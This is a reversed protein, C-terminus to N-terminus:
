TGDYDQKSFIVEKYNEDLFRAYEKDIETVQDLEKTRLEIRVTKEQIFVNAHHSTEEEYELLDIIFRNKNKTDFFSYTKSMRKPDSLIQWKDNPIIPLSPRQPSIPNRGFQMPRRSTEIFEEHIKKLNM